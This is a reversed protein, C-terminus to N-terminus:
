KDLDMYLYKILVHILRTLLVPNFGNSWGNIIRAFKGWWHPNALGKM